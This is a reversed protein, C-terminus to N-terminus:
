NKIIDVSVSGNVNGNPNIQISIEKQNPIIMFKEGDYNWTYYESIGTEHLTGNLIFDESFEFGDGKLSIGLKQPSDGNPVFRFEYKGKEFIITDSYIGNEYLKPNALTVHFITENEKDSSNSQSGIVIIAVIFILIPIILLRKNM